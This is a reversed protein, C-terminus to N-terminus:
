VPEAEAEAAEGAADSPADEVESPQPYDRDEDPDVGPFSPDDELAYWDTSQDFPLLGRAILAARVINPYIESVKVAFAKIREGWTYEVTSDLVRIIERRQERRCRDLLLCPEREKM